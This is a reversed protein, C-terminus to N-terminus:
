WVTVSVDKRPHRKENAVEWGSFHGRDQVVVVFVCERGSFCGKKQISVEFISEWGRFQWKKHVAAEFVFM